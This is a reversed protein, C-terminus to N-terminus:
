QLLLYQIAVLTLLAAMGLKLWKVQARPGVRLGIQFGVLVGLCAMGALHFDEFYGRAWHEAVGPVSTVGIMLVSTAAAVRMPVGCLSNLTPVIVIGGGVGIFSALVGATFSVGAAVPLRKVRYAVEEGTDDDYIRGGLVGLDTTGPPLVNRQNRRIFMAAATAAAALGFIVKYTDDSFFTIAKAGLTAGSVSFLLLFIALRANLLGRGEPAMVASSSTALVGALSVATAQRFTLGLWGNLLPVLLVGGGIGMLAGLFGAAVGAFLTLAELSHM